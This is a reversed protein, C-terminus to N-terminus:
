PDPPRPLGRSRKFGSGQDGIQAIVDVLTSKYIHKLGGAQEPQEAVVGPQANQAQQGGVPQVHALQGADEPDGLRAYGAM